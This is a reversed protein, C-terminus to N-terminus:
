EFRLPGAVQRGAALLDGPFFGLGFYYRLRDIKPPAEPDSPALGAARAEERQLRSRNLPHAVQFFARLPIQYNTFLEVRLEGGIDSLFDKPAFESLSLSQFNGVAGTEGFLEAYAKAFTFNLLGTDLRRFVPFSYALRAYAIKSGSKTFYPYGSLFDLGGIYYRLPWYFRGEFFGGDADFSSKLRQNRYAGLMEFSIRNNYPLGIHENYSAIYENLTLPRRDGAFFDRPVGDPSVQQALSDAVQSKIYRYALSLARGTPNVLYDETAKLHSYRWAFTLDDSDFFDLGRYWDFANNRAILLSDQRVLEAPLSASIDVSDQIVYFQTQQRLRQLSWDENYDRNVYQVFFSHRGAPVEVGLAVLDFVDKFRDKRTSADVSYTAADPVLLDASDAPVTFTSVDFTDRVVTASNIIYDIERRRFAGFFSPNFGRNNGELRHLSREYMLLFDTNLDTEERFNKGLIAQATFQEGGLEDGAQFFLGGSVQNLGFQNGIFTPGVQVLPVLDYLRRGGYATVTYEEDLKPLDVKTQYDRALAADWAVPREWAGLDFGYLDFDNAHYGAYTVHGDASVTPSFAGGVVNTLQTVAGSAVDYRYLNFIGSRDSSFLFGSGDPLWWPDREDARAALVLRFGSTDAAPYALSDPFVQLSDAVQHRDRLGWDKPRPPSDARMMAIDRDDGRFLSFLLWQGDPSWRPAYIQAGDEYNTLQRLGTGDRRAVFLNADGDDLRAFAVQQGDPSVQPDRARLEASIRHEEDRSVSYVYLDNHGGETRLFVVGDGDPTWSVRTDVPRDLSKKQGTALDAIVVHPIRYDRDESSIYALKKGDPSYAPHYDLVGGNLSALEEGEFFGGTRVEAVQQEYQEKLFRVWDSYLQQASIGLVRQIAVEFSLFGVHEQLADVKDRGYQDAIYVLLAFGQNYVMEARYGGTRNSLTGMEGYSHLDDELVAMRLVMDRHSDWTDWGLAYPGMQAIGEVWWKPTNLYYLPFDFSIDPNADFRSVQLLAFRFPWKKRAKDLTMVHTIEHTLVNRIWDHEGRIEWDVNSAWINVQNTYDSASGNGYDSDDRVLIHIPAYDDYYHFAAAMPPFMEEAVEAVRRATRETGPVFTIQFHDTHITRLQGHASGALLLATLTAAAVATRSPTM